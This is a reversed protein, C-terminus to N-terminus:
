HFGIAEKMAIVATVTAHCCGVAGSRHRFTTPTPLAVRGVILNTVQLKYNTYNRHM